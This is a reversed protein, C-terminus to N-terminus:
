DIAYTQIALVKTYPVDTLAQLADKVEKMETDTASEKLGQLSLNKGSKDETEQLLSLKGELYAKAM